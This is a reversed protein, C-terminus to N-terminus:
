FVNFLLVAAFTKLRLKRYSFIVFFIHDCDRLDM